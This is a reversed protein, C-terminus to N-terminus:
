GEYKDLEQGSIIKDVVELVGAPADGGDKLRTAVDYISAIMTDGYYHKGGYVVYPRVAFKDKYRDKPINVLVAAFTTDDTGPEYKNLAVKGDVRQFSPSIIKNVQTDATLEAGGLIEARAVIYGFETLSKDEMLASKVTAQFRLGAPHKARISTANAHSTPAVAAINVITKGYTASRKANVLEPITISSYNVAEDENLTIIMKNDVFEVSKVADSLYKAPNAEMAAVANAEFGNETTVTITPFDLSINTYADPATPKYYLKIDDIYITGATKSSNAFVWCLGMATDWESTPTCTKVLNQWGGASFTTPNVYSLGSKKSKNSYLSMAPRAEIGKAFDDDIFYLNSSMTFTAPVTIYEEIRSGGVGNNNLATKFIPYDTETGINVKVYKGSGIGAVNGVLEATTGKGGTAYTRNGHPKYDKGDTGYTEGETFSEFNEDIIKVGLTPDYHSATEEALSADSIKSSIAGGVEISIEDASEIPEAAPSAFATTSFVTATALLISLLKKM